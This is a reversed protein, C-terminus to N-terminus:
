YGAADVPSARRRCFGIQLAIALVLLVIGVVLAPRGLRGVVQRTSHREHGESGELAERQAKNLKSPVEVRSPCAPRGAAARSSRRAAGKVRLLKGDQSGAPVKISVRGDPTPIEVVAGLAVEDFNM